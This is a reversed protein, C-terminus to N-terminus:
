CIPESREKYITLEMGYERSYNLISNGAPIKKFIDGVTPDRYDFVNTILGSESVVYCQRNAPTSQRSDIVMYQNNRLPYDVKYINNGITWQVGSAAGYIVMKFDSDKYHNTDIYVNTPAGCYSYPYQYKGTAYGKATEDDEAESTPYIEVVQENIWFPYPCYMTVENDTYVSGDDDPNTKSSIMFCEIYTDGWTLRGATMHCIDYETEFHFSEIQSKRQSKSGRFKFTCAYSQASKTFRSVIEGFQRSVVEKGWSYNHFNAKYLKASDFNLLNFTVGRSSTYTVNAM